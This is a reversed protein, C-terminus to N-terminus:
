NFWTRSDPIKTIWVHSRHFNLIQNKIKPNENTGNWKYFSAEEYMGFDHLFNVLSQNTRPDEYMDGFIYYGTNNIFYWTNEGIHYNRQLLDFMPSSTNKPLKMLNNYKIYTRMMSSFSKDTILKNIILNNLNFDPLISDSILPYRPERFWNDANENKIELYSKTTRSLMGPYKVTFTNLNQWKNENLWLINDEISVIKIDMQKIWLKFIDYIQVDTFNFSNNQIIINIIEIIEKPNLCLNNSTISKFKTCMTKFNIDSKWPKTDDNFLYEFSSRTYSVSKTNLGMYVYDRNVIYYNKNEDFRILYPVFNRIFTKKASSM